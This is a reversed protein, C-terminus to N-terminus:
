WKHRAHDCGRDHLRSTLGFSPAHLAVQVADVACCLRRLTVQVADGAIGVLAGKQQTCTRSSSDNAILWGMSCGSRKAAMPSDVAM